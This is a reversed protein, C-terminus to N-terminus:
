WLLLIIMLTSWYRKFKQGFLIHTSIILRKNKKANSLSHIVLTETWTLKPTVALCYPFKFQTVKTSLFYIQLWPKRKCCDVPYPFLCNKGYLWKCSIHTHLDDVEESRSNATYGGDAKTCVEGPVSNVRACMFKLMKGKSKWVATLQEYISECSSQIVLVVSFTKWCLPCSIYLQNTIFRLVTLKTL